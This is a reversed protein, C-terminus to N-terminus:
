FDYFKRIAAWGDEATDVYTVLDLDEPAITGEEALAELDIVRRWFSEGFLLVPIRQMRRTQILTLAEFLEDMTGFGGPFIIIAKALYVFWFKRMFFYHFELNLERTIYPNDAQELPLSINLGANIGAAESAGRNAAEMIGTGGGSCVIFRSGEGELAKSWETLRGALERAAEYYASMDFDCEAATVDSDQDQAAKLRKKAEDRSVFRASGFFVVTDRVQFEEFRAEPEM